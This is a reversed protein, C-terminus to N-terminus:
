GHHSSDFMEHRSQDSMTDLIHKLERDADSIHRGRHKAKLKLLEQLEEEVNAFRSMYEFMMRNTKRMSVNNEKEIQAQVYPWTVKRLTRVQLELDILRPLVSEWLLGRIGRVVSILNESNVELFDDNEM